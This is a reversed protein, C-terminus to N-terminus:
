LLRQTELPWKDLYQGPEINNLKPSQALVPTKLKIQSYAGTPFM